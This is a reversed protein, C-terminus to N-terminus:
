DITYDTKQYKIQTPFYNVICRAAIYSNLVSASTNVVGYYPRCIGKSPDCSVAIINDLTAEQLILDSDGINVYVSGFTYQPADPKASTTIKRNLVLTNDPEFKQGYAAIFLYGTATASFETDAWVKIEFIDGIEPNLFEAYGNVFSLAGYQGNYVTGSGSTVLVTIGSRIRNVKWYLTRNAGSINKNLICYLYILNNCSLPQKGSYSPLDASLITFIVQGEGDSPEECPITLVDTSLSREPHTIDVKVEEYVKLKDEEEDSFFLCSNFM